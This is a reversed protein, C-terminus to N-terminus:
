GSRFGKEHLWGDDVGAGNGALPRPLAATRRWPAICPMGGLRRCGGATPGGALSGSRQEHQLRSCSGRRPAERGARRRLRQGRGGVSDGCSGRVDGRPQGGGRPGGWPEHRCWRRWPGRRWRDALREQWAIAEGVSGAISRVTGAARPPVAPAGGQVELGLLRLPPLRLGGGAAAAAPGQDGLAPQHVVLASQAWRRARGRGGAACPHHQGLRPRARGHRPRQALCGEWEEEQPQPRRRRGLAPM